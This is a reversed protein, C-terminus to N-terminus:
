GRPSGLGRGSGGDRGGRRSEKEAENMRQITKRIDDIWFALSEGNVGRSAFEMRSEIFPYRRLTALVKEYLARRKGLGALDDETDAAREMSDLAEAMAKRWSDRHQQTIRIGRDLVSYERFGLLFMLDDLSEVLGDCLMSEEALSAAFNAPNADSGDVIWTGEADGRWRTSRGVFDISLKSAPLLMADALCEAHGGQVVLGKFLGLQAALMKSRVDADTWMEEVRKMFHAVGGLRADTSLYLEKWALAMLSSVGVADEVWMVQRTDPLEEQFRKVMDRISEPDPNGFEQPDDDQLHSIRNLDACNMQFVVIDPRARSLDRLLEDVVVESVDTGIQGRLPVVYVRPKAIEGSGATERVSDIEFLVVWPGLPPGAPPTSQSAGASSANSRQTPTSAKSAPGGVGSQATGSPKSATGASGTTGVAGIPALRLVSGDIGKVTVIETANGEVVGDFAILNKGDRYTVRVKAGAEGRWVTGDPLRIEAAAAPRSALLAWAFALGIRAFWGLASSHQM